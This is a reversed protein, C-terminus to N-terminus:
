PEAPAARGEQLLAWRLPRLVNKVPTERLPGFRLARGEPIARVAEIASEMVAIERYGALSQLRATANMGSSFATLDQNPGFTGVCAPCLNVGVAIGLGPAVDPREKLRALMPDDGFSETFALMERAAALARLALQEPPDGFFPPGFLGVICDGIMKDFTGGHRWLIDVAGASWRDVFAGIASPRELIRESLKTFGNIDAFLIGVQEERPKLYRAYDPERLLRNVVPGPFFARLHRRERNHDVLRDRAMAGLLQLLDHAFISFGREGPQVLMKGLWEAESHGRGMRIELADEIGMVAKLRPRDPALLELGQERIAVALGPHPRGEPEHVLRGERWLRYSLARDDVAHRWVLALSGFELSEHLLAVADDLGRELVRNSLALNLRQILDQKLGATLVTALIADLEEAACDVLAALRDGASLGGPFIFGITGVEEGAVELPQCVLVKGGVAHAGRPRESLLTWPDEGALDGAAFAASQLTEDRTLVAAGGAGMREAVAPLYRQLSARVSLRDRVCTELLADAFRGLALLEQALALDRVDSV